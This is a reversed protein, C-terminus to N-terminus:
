EALAKNEAKALRVGALQALTPAIDAPTSHGAWTLRNLDPYRANEFVLVFSFRRRNM